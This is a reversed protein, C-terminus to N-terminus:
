TVGGRPSRSSNDAPRRRRRVHIQPARVIRVTIEQVPPDPRAALAERLSDVASSLDRAAGLPDPRAALDGRLGRVEALLEDM